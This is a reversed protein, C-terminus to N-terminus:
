AIEDGSEAYAVLNEATEATRQPTEANDKKEDLRVCERL